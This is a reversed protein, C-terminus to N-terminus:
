EGEMGFFIREKILCGVGVGLGVGVGVGVGVEAVAFLLLLIRGCAVVTPMRRGEVEMGVGEGALVFVFPLREWSGLIM